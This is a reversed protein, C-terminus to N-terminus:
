PAAWWTPQMAIFITIPFFLAWFIITLKKSQYLYYSLGWLVISFFATVYYILVGYVGIGENRIIFEKSDIILFLGIGFSLALSLAYLVYSITKKYQSM